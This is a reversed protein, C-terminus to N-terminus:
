SVTAVICFLFYGSLCFRLNLEGVSSRDYRCGGVGTYKKRYGRDGWQMGTDKATRPGQVTEGERRYRMVTEGTPRDGGGM